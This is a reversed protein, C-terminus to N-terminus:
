GALKPLFSTDVWYKKLNGENVRVPIKDQSIHDTPDFWLNGSRFVHLERTNPHQWQCVVRFPSRGNVILGTNQEVGQFSAHIEVGHKKLHANSRNKLAVYAMIGCGILGFVSGIGGVILAGGWLSFFGNIKAAEPNSPEYLVSVQEGQNYSPPSSGSNSQFEVQRGNPTSFEVVPYYSVSDSFRSRILEVVTGQASVSRELFSATSSYIAFAGALMCAGIIAFAYKVVNITKM